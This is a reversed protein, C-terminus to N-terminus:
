AEPRRATVVIMGIHEYGDDTPDPAVRLLELDSTVPELAERVEEIGVPYAPWQDWDVDLCESPM